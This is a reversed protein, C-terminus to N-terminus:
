ISFVLPFSLRDNVQDSAEQAALNNIIETDLDAGAWGDPAYEVLLAKHAANRKANTPQAEAAAVDDAPVRIFVRKDPVFPRGSADLASIDYIVDATGDNSARIANVRYKAM